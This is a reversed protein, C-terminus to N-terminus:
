TTKGTNKFLFRRRTKRVFVQSFNHFLVLCSRGFVFAAKCAKSDGRSGFWLKVIPAPPISYVLQQCLAYRLSGLSATSSNNASHPTRGVIFALIASSFDRAKNVLKPTADASAGPSRPRAVMKKSTTLSHVYRYWAFYHCPARALMEQQYLPQGAAKKCSNLVEQWSPNCGPCIGCFM